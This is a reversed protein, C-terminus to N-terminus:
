LERFLSKFSNYSRALKRHVSSKVSIEGRAGKGAL